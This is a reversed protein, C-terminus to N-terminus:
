AKAQRAKQREMQERRAIRHAERCKDCRCGKKQYVWNKGHPWDGKLKYPNHVGQTGLKFYLDDLWDATEGIVFCDDFIEAIKVLATMRPARAGSEYLTVAHRKVGIAEGMEAQTLDHKIRLDRLQRRLLKGDKECPMGSKGIIFGIELAKSISLLHNVTLPRGVELMYVTRRSVNAKEGLETQSIYSCNRAMVAQKKISHKMRKCKNCECKDM